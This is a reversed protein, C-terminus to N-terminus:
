KVPKGEKNLKVSGTETEKKLNIAYYEKGDAEKILYAETPTWDKLNTSSLTKKIAEPLEEVKVDTKTEAPTAPATTTTTNTKTTDQAGTQPTTQTTTQTTTTTTTSPTGTQTATQANAFLPGIVFFALAAFDVKKMM